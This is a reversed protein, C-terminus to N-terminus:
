TLLKKSLGYLLSKLFNKAAMYDNASVSQIQEHLKSSMSQLTEDLQRHDALGLRGYQAQKALLQEVVGREAKFKDDQLLRPWEVRGSVPDVEHADIPKPVAQAALRVLQEQSLRPSRRSQMVQRHTDQMEYYASTAQMRNQIDQKEAQTMNIAAASTMLNYQGQSSIISSMGQMMSGEVTAGGPTGEYYVQALAATTLTLITALM